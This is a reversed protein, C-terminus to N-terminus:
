IYKNLRININKAKQKKKSKRKQKLPYEKRTQRFDNQQKGRSSITTKKITM